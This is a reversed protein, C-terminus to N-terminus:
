LWRERALRCLLLQVPFREPSAHKGPANLNNIFYKVECNKCTIYHMRALAPIERRRARGFPKGIARQFGEPGYM